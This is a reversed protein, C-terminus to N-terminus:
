KMGYLRRYTAASAYVKKVYERTEGYPISEIFEDKELGGMSKQWRKVAGAGANYAAAMLVADGKYEKKLDALHKTGLKINYEPVVLRQSNFAGKERATLKATAPMMQMLGIAGAGSKVAPSFGSEARILAYVFGESLGNLAANSTILESYVRPYGLTWLPLESKTWAVTMNKVFMYIAMGYDQMELYVRAVAPLQKKNEINKRRIETMEMRADERLGLSALLRPKDFGAVLPIETLANRNGLSARLDELGKHERYWTAYFGSPFENLLTNFYSDASAASGSKEVGRGSWYLAKERYKEDSLLTSFQKVSGKYDGALYRCWGSGWALRAKTKSESTLKTAEEFLQAADSFQGFGRKVSAAEELAECAYKHKKDGAIQLYMALAEEKLNQRDRSKALWFVAESHVEPYSSKAAKIFQTESLSYKRQRYQA